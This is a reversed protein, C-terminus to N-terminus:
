DAAPLPLLGYQNRNEVLVYGISPDEESVQGLYPQEVDEQADAGSVACGAAALFMVLLVAAIRRKM